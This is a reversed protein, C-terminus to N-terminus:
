RTHTLRGSPRTERTEWQVEAQKAKNSPTDAEKSDQRGRRKGLTKNEKEGMTGRRNRINPGGISLKPSPHPRM